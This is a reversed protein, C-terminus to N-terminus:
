QEQASIIRRLIEGDLDQRDTYVVTLNIGDAIGIAVVRRERYYKRRDQGEFTPGDFIFRRSSSTSNDNACTRM